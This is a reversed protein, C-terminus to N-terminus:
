PYQDSICDIVIEHPYLLESIFTGYSETGVLMSLYSFIYMFLVFLRHFNPSYVVIWNQLATDEGFMWLSHTHYIYM